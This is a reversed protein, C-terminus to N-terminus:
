KGRLGLTGFQFNFYLILTNPDFVSLGITGKILSAVTLFIEWRDIVEGTSVKIKMM